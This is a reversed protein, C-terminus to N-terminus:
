IWASFLTPHSQRYVRLWSLTAPVLSRACFWLAEDQAAGPADLCSRAARWGAWDVEPMAGRVAEPLSQLTDAMLAVQRRVEERTLRSRLLESETVDDTMVIVAEAADRILNLMPATIM